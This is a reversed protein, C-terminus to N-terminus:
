VTRIEKSASSIFLTPMGELLSIVNRSPKMRTCRICKSKVMSCSHHWKVYNWTVAIGQEKQNHNDVNYIVV